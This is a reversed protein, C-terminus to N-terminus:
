RPTAAPPSGDLLTTIAEPLSGTFSEIIASLGLLRPRDARSALPLARSVLEGARGLQGAETAARAAAFLRRGRAQETESLRAAREFATAASAHGGRM